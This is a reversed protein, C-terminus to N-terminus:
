FPNSVAASRDGDAVNNRERGVREEKGVVVVHPSGSYATWELREEVSESAWESGACDGFLELFFDSDDQSDDHRRSWTIICQRYLPSSKPDQRTSDHVL